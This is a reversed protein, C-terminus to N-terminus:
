RFAKRLREPNWYVGILGDSLLVRVNILKNFSSPINFNKDIVMLLTTHINYLKWGIKEVSVMFESTNAAFNKPFRVTYLTGIDISQSKKM